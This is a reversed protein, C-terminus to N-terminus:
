GALEADLDRARQREPEAAGLASRLRSANSRHLATSLRAAWRQMLSSAAAEGGDPLGQARTRALGRLHKLASLGLRGFTEVAFPVVQWPTRGDPYRLRKELEAARNVAGPERAAAALQTDGGPVGYRVTVDLLARPVRASRVGLDRIAEELEHETSAGCFACPAGPLDWTVGRRNCPACHSKWRNWQPVHVQRAVTYGCEEHITALVNEVDVSRAKLGGGRSCRHAHRAYACLLEGCPQGASPGTRARNQCTSGSLAVPQGLLERATSRYDGDDFKEGANCPSAWQWAAALPGACSHLRAKSAADLSGLLATHLKNDIRMCLIKQLKKRPQLAWDNWDLVDATGEATESPGAPPLSALADRCHQALPLTCSELDM